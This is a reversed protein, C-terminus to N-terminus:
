NQFWDKYYDQFHDLCTKKCRFNVEIYNYMALDCMAHADPQRHLSYEEFAKKRDGPYRSLMDELVLVDEM